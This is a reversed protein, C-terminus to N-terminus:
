ICMHYMIMHILFVNICIFCFLFQFYLVTHRFETIVLLKSFFSCKNEYDKRGFYVDDIIIESFLAIVTKPYLLKIAKLM